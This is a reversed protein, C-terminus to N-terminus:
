GVAEKRANGGKGLTAKALEDLCDNVQDITMSGMETIVTSRTKIADYAVTSGAGLQTLSRKLRLHQPLGM